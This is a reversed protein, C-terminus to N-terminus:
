GSTLISVNIIMVCPFLIIM